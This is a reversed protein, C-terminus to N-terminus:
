NGHILVEARRRFDDMQEGPRPQIGRTSLFRICESDNKPLASGSQTKEPTQYEDEWRDGNLYTTPNPIYGASWKACATPRTKTDKIIKDALSDLKRRKWIERAKKKEIKKPYLGWWEDFRTATSTTKETEQKYAETETEVMAVQKCGALANSAVLFGSSILPNLEVKGSVGIQKAIWAADNPIKNELQSALLWILMLHLKSADQLCGFEYDRLLKRELKIWPPDRDKYHQFKEWNKVKLYEM